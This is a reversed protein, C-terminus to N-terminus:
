NVLDDTRASAWGFDLHEDTKHGIMSDATNIAKYALAGPLSALTMWFLPAVVGDGFSEALSQQAARSGGAEDLEATDRGVIEAVAARGGAIGRVELADAVALVHDHLSRQAVLSSALVVIPLFALWWPLLHHCLRTVILGILLS